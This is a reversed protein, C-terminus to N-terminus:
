ATALDISAEKTLDVSVEKLLAGNSAKMDTNLVSIKVLKVKPDYGFTGNLTFTGDSFDFRLHSYDPELSEGDDLYLEGKANGDDDPAVILEFDNKRLETTTYASSVRLPVISGGRIHVPIEDLGVNYRMVTAGAGDVKEFTDFEYFTDKPLYFSVDTSNPETVPSVLLADGSFFQLDISFTNEDEPYEWVLPRIVAEGGGYQSQKWFATYTYDLLRYRTEIAKRAADAVEPWLYFEQHISSFEAHNRFFPNWSGLVAWRACLTPNTDYNFGCVDSGVMPFNFLAPFTIM